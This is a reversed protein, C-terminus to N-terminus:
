RGWRVPPYNLLPHDPCRTGPDRLSLFCRREDGVWWVVVDSVM